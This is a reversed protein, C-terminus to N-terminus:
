SSCPIKLYIKNVEEFKEKEEWEKVLEELSHEPPLEHKATLVLNYNPNLEMNALLDHTVQKM